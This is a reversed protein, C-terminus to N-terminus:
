KGIMGQYKFFDDLRQDRLHLQAFENRIELAQKIFKWRFYGSRSETWKSASEPDNPMLNMGGMKKRDEESYQKWGHMYLDEMIDESLDIARQKLNGVL